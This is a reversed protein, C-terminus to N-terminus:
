CVSPVADSEVAVFRRAQVDVLADMECVIIKCDKEADVVVKM